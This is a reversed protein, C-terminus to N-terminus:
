HPTTSSATTIPAAIPSWTPLRLSAPPTPLRLGPRLDDPVTWLAPPEVMLTAPPQPYALPPCVPPDSDSGLWYGTGLSLLLLLIDM